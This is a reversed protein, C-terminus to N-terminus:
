LGPSLFRSVEWLINVSDRGHFRIQAPQIWDVVGYVLGKLGVSKGYFRASDWRHVRIQASQIWDMVGYVLGKLGVLKGCFTLLTREMFRLSLRSFGTWLGM